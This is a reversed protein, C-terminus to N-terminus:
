SHYFWCPMLFWVMLHRVSRKQQKSKFVCPVWRCIGVGVEIVIMPPISQIVQALDIQGYTIELWQELNLTEDCPWLDFDRTPINTAVTRRMAKLLVWAIYNENSASQIITFTLGLYEWGIAGLNFPLFSSPFCPSFIHLFTVYRVLNTSTHKGRSCRLLGLNLRETCWFYFM